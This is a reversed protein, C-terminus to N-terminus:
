MINLHHIEILRELRSKDNISQEVNMIHNALDINKYQTNVYSKTIEVLKKEKLILRDELYRITSKLQHHYVVTENEKKVIYNNLNDLMELLSDIKVRNIGIFFYEKKCQPCHALSKICGNCINLSCCGGKVIEYDKFTTYCIECNM